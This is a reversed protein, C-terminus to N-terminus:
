TSHHDIYSSYISGRQYALIKKHHWWRWWSWALETFALMNLGPQIIDVIHLWIPPLSSIGLNTAHKISTCLAPLNQALYLSEPKELYLNVPSPALSQSSRHINHKPVLRRPTPHCRPLRSTHSSRFNICNICNLRGKMHWSWALWAFALYFERDHFTWDKYSHSCCTVIGKHISNM